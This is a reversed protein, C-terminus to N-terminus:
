PTTISPILQDIPVYSNPLVKTTKM